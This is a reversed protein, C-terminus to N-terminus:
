TPFKINPTLTRSRQGPKTAYFITGQKTAKYHLRYGANETDLRQQTTLLPKINLLQNNYIVKIDGHGYHLVEVHKKALSCKLPGTM